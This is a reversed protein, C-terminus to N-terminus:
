SPLSAMPGPKARPNTGGCPRARSPASMGYSVRTIFTWCRMSLLAIILPSEVPPRRFDM